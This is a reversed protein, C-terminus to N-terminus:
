KRHRPSGPAVAVPSQQSHVGTNGPSLAACLASGRGGAAPVQGLWVARRWRLCLRPPVAGM